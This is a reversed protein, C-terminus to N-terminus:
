RDYATNTRFVLLLGTVVGLVPILTQPFEMRIVYNHMVVIIVTFLCMLLVQWWIKLIVTGKLRFMIPPPIEIKFKTRISFM